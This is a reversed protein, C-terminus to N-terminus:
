GRAKRGAVKEANSATKASRGLMVRLSDDTTGLMTAADKRPIGLVILARARDVVTGEGLGIKHICLLALAKASVAQWDVEEREVM